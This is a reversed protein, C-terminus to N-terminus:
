LILVTRIGNTHNLIKDIVLFFLMSSASFLIGTNFVVCKLYYANKKNLTQTSLSSAHAAGTADKSPESEWDM